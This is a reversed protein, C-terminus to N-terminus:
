EGRTLRMIEDTTMKIGGKGRMKADIHHQLRNRSDPNKTLVVEGDKIVFEIDDHPAIALYERIKQPITVQGKTTLKM